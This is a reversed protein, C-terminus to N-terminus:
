RGFDRIGDAKFVRRYRSCPRRWSSRPVRQLDIGSGLHGALSATRPQFLLKFFPM